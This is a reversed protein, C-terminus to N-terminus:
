ILIHVFNYPPVPGVYKFDMRDGKEAELSNLAGDFAPQKRESVLFAANLLMRDHLARNERCDECLGLLAELVERGERERKAQLAAEVWEGIQIRQFHTREPPRGQIESKLRRIAPIEEEIERFVVGPKWIAKVGLEVKGRMRGLTDRFEGQREELIKVMEEETEAVTGFRVPLVTTRAMVAEVVRQHTLANERSVPYKALPADSVVAALGDYRVTHVEGGGAMGIPGYSEERRAGVICYVYKGTRPAQAM